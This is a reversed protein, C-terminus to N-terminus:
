GPPQPSPLLLGPLATLPEVAISPRPLIALVLTWQQELTGTLAAIRAVGSQDSYAPLTLLPQPLVLEGAARGTKADFGRIQNTTGAVVITQGIVVPGTTPRFPLGRPSWRLAGNSRDFARLLNDLAVVYVRSADAAPRGRVVAGIQQRWAVQGDRADLCYFSKDASGVYLRDPLALVATPTGSLRRAWRETGTALELALVRGDALPLYLNDGEISPQESVRELTRRWVVSGDTARLASVNDTAAAIVWGDMALIPATLTGVAAQWASSGDANLAVIAAGSVAFVRGGDAALPMTTPLDRRWLERGDSVGHAAVIGSELAVYVRDGDIVPPAAPSASLPVSWAVSTPWQPSGLRPEGATVTAAALATAM